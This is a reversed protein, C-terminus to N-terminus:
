RGGRARVSALYELRMKHAEAEMELEGKDYPLEFDGEEEFACAQPPAPRNCRPM